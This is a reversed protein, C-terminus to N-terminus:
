RGASLIDMGSANEIASTCAHCLCPILQPSYAELCPRLEEVWLALEVSSMGSAMGVVHLAIHQCLGWTAASASYLWSGLPLLMGFMYTTIM